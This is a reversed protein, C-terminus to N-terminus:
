TVPVPSEARIQSFWIHFTTGNQNELEVKGDLQNTLTNVLRMGLSEVRRFDIEKPLGIGNDSVTLLYRGNEGALRIQIEGPGGDPFAYKLANSVLEHVILGCPIATDINLQVRGSDIKRQITAPVGYSRFLYATLDHIYSSFDIRALDNTEYLKEHILAM